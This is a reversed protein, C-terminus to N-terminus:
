RQTICFFSGMMMCSANQGRGSRQNRCLHSTVSSGFLGLHSVEGQGGQFSAHLYEQSCFCGLSIQGWILDRIIACKVFVSNLVSNRFEQGSIVCSPCPAGVSHVVEWGQQRVM